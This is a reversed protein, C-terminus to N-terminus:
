GSRPPYLPPALVAPWPLRTHAVTCALRTHTPPPRLCEWAGDDRIRAEGRWFVRKTTLLPFSHRLNFRM